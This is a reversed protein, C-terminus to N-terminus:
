GKAKCCKCFKVPFVRENLDDIDAQIDALTGEAARVVKRGRAATNVMACTEVHVRAARSPDAVTSFLLVLRASPDIVVDGRNARRVGLM